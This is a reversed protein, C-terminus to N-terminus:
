AAGKKSKKCDRKGNKIAQEIANVAKTNRLYLRVAESAVQSAQSATYGLELFQNFAQKYVFDSPSLSM